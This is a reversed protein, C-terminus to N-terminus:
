LRCSNRTVNMPISVYEVLAVAWGQKRSGPAADREFIEFPVDHAHLAQALALGGLGAGIIIVKNSEDLDYM